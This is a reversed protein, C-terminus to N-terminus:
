CMIHEVKRHRLSDVRRTLCREIGRLWHGAGLRWGRRDRTGRNLECIVSAPQGRQPSRSKTICEHEAGALHATAARQMYAKEDPGHENQLYLSVPEIVMSALATSSRMLSFPM